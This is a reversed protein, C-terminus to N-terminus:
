RSRARARVASAARVSSRFRIAPSICSRRPCRSLRMETCAPASSSAAARCAGARAPCVSSSRVVAPVAISSSRSIRPTRRWASRAPGSSSRDPFPPDPLPRPVRSSMAASTSSDRRVPLATSSSQDTGSPASGPGRVRFAM